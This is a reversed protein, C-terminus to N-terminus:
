LGARQKLERPRPWKALGQDTNTASNGSQRLDRLWIGRRTAQRHVFVRGNAAAAFPLRYGQWPGGPPSKEEPDFVYDRSYAAARALTQALDVDGPELAISALPMKGLFLIYSAPGEYTPWQAIARAKGSEPRVGNQWTQLLGDAKWGADRLEQDVLFRLDDADLGRAMLEAAQACRERLNETLEALHKEEADLPEPLHESLLLSVDENGSQEMLQAAAKLDNVAQRALTEARQRAELHKRSNERARKLHKELDAVRHRLHELERRAADDLKQEHDGPDPPLFPPPTFSRDRAFVRHYWV